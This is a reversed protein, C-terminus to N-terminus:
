IELRGFKGSDRYNAKVMASADRNGIFEAAANDWELKTGPNRIAISGLIATQATIGATRFDSGARRGTKIANVFDKMHDGLSLSKHIDLAGAGRLSKMKEEPIIRCGNAGHSGYILTNDTGYVVAGATWPKYTANGLDRDAELMPPRPVQKCFEGDHWLIKLTKRNPLEFEFTVRSSNPFALGDRARDWGETVEAQVTKPAGLELATFLPDLLHCGWDGPTGSGYPTWARWSSSLYRSYPHHEAPGVWRDWDFGPPVAEGAALDPLHSKSDLLRMTVWTHVEQIRGLVGKQVWSAFIRNSEFTRGQNGMQTVVRHKEAATMLARIEEVTRALPKEVYVHKGASMAQLAPLAHWHDPTGIVVADFSKGLTEYMERYDTFVKADPVVTRTREVSIPNVDAFAILRGYKLFATVDARGQGGVGVAVAYVTESPPTEGSGAILRRPLILFGATGKLFNRRACKMVLGGQTGEFITYYWLGPPYDQM